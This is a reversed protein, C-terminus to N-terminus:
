LGIRRRDRKDRSQRLGRILVGASGGPVTVGNPRARRCRCSSSGNTESSITTLARRRRNDATGVEHVRAESRQIGDGRDWEGDASEGSSGDCGVM